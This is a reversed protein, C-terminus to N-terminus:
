RPVIRGAADRYHTAGLANVRMQPTVDEPAITIRPLREAVTVVRGAARAGLEVRAIETDVNDEPTKPAEVGEARLHAPVESIFGPQPTESM